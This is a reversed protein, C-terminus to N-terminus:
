LRYSENYEYAYATNTHDYVSSKLMMVKESNPGISLSVSQGNTNTPTLIEM